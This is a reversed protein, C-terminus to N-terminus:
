VYYSRRRVRTARQVTPDLKAIEWNGSMKLKAPVNKFERFESKVRPWIKILADHDGLRETLCSEQWLWLMRRSLQNNPFYMVYVHPSFADRKIIHPYLKNDLKPKEILECDADVWLVGNKSTDLLAQIITPKTRTISLWEDSPDYSVITHDLGLKESAAMLQTAHTSYFDGNKENDATYFSIVQM